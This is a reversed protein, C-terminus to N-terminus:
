ATIRVYTYERYNETFPCKKEEYKNQFVFLSFCILVQIEERIEVVAFNYIIGGLTVDYDTSLTVSTVTLPNRFDDIAGLPGTVVDAQNPALTALGSVQTTGSPHELLYKWQTQM